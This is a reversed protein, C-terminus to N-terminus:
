RDLELREIFPECFVDILDRQESVLDELTFLNERQHRLCSPMLKTALTEETVKVDAIGFHVLIGEAYSIDTTVKAFDVRKFGQSVCWEVTDLETQLERLFIEWHHTPRRNMISVVVEYPNRVMVGLKGCEHDDDKVLEKVLPLTLGNVEGYNKTGKYREVLKSLRFQLEKEHRTIGLARSPGGRAYRTDNPAQPEHLVKWSRSRNMLSSLFTTGTRQRGTILFRYKDHPNKKM